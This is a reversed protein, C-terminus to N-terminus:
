KGKRRRTRPIVAFWAVCVHVVLTCGAHISIARRIREIGGGEIGCACRHVFV